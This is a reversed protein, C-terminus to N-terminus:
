EEAFDWLVNGQRDFIAVEEKGDRERFVKFFNGLLWIDDYQIPLITNGRLDAFGLLDGKVLKYGGENEYVEWDNLPIIMRGDVDAIGQKEGREVKWHGTEQLNVQCSDCDFQPNRQLFDHVKRPAKRTRIPGMTGDGDIERAFYYQYLGTQYWLWGEEIFCDLVIGNERVLVRHEKDMIVSGAETRFVFCNKMIRDVVIFGSEPDLQNGELDFILEGRLKEGRILNLNPYVDIAEFNAELITKGKPSLLGFQDISLPGVDEPGVNNGSGFEDEFGFEDPEYDATDPELYETHRVLIFGDSRLQYQDESWDTLLQGRHDALANLSDKQLVKLKLKKWAKAEMKQCEGALYEETPFCERFSLNQSSYLAREQSRLDIPCPMRAPLTTSIWDSYPERWGPTRLKVKLESPWDLLLLEGKELVSYWNGSGRVALKWKRVDAIGRREDDYYREQWVVKDFVFGTILKGTADVLAVKGNRLVPAVGNVLGVAIDDLSDLVMGNENVFGYQGGEVHHPETCYRRVEGGKCTWFLGQGWYGIKQEAMPLIWEGKKNMLGSEGTGFVPAIRDPNFRYNPYSDGTSCVIFDDGIPAMQFPMLPMLLKGSQDIFSHQGNKSVPIWVDDSQGMLLSPVVVLWCLLAWVFTKSRRHIFFKASFPSLSHMMHNEGLNRIESWVFSLELAVKEAGGM